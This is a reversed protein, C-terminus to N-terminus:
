QLSYTRRSKVEKLILYIQTVLPLPYSQSVCLSSTVPSFSYFIKTPFDWPFIWKPSRSILLLIINVHNMFNYKTRPTFQIRTALFVTGHRGRKMMISYRRTVYFAPFKKVLHPVILEKPLVRSRPIPWFNTRLVRWMCRSHYTRMEKYRWLLM